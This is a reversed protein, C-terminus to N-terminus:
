DLCPREFRMFALLVCVVCSHLWGTINAHAFIGFWALTPWLGSAPHDGSSAERDSFYHAQLPLRVMQILMTVVCFLGVAAIFMPFIKDTLLRDSILSADYFSVIFYLGLLIM